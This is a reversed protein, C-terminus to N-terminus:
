MLNNLLKRSLNSAYLYYCRDLGHVTLVNLNYVRSSEVIRARSRHTLCNVLVFCMSSSRTTMKKAIKKRSFNMVRVGRSFLSGLPYLAPTLMLPYNRRIVDSRVENFDKQKKKCKCYILESEIIIKWMKVEYIQGAVDNRKPLHKFLFFQKRGFRNRDLM